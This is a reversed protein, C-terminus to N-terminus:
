NAVCPGVYDYVKRSDSKNGSYSGVEEGSVSDLLSFAISNDTYEYHYSVDKYGYHTVTVDECVRRCRREGDIVRCRRRCETRYTNYSCSETTNTIDSSTTQTDRTGQIDFFQGSDKGAILFDGYHSPLGQGDPLKIKVTVDENGELKIKVKKGITVKFRASYNGAPITKEKENGFATTHVVKISKNATFSGKTPMCSTLVLASLLAMLRM